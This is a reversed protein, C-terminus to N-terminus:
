EIEYNMLEVPLLSIVPTLVFSGRGLTGAVLTDDSNSFSLDFVPANPLDTGLTDWVTFPTGAATELAVYVGVNAGVALGDKGVMGNLYEISRLTGPSFSSFLNDTIETWSAGADTTQFVQDTDIVFATMADAPDVVIGVVTDGSTGSMAAYAASLAPATPPAATRVFVDDDSGFYLVDNNGATGYAIPDRGSSNVVLASILSVSAGRDASEYVGNSAGIIIRLPDAGNVALPTFFQASVPPAGGLPTLTLTTTGVIANASTFERRRLSSLFQFSHYRMSNTAITDGLGVVVDGGDATLYSTWTASGTSSQGTTGTDQNGSFIIDAVSDYAMNHQENVPLDGNLSAWDGTTLDPDSHRYIGGDDSEVLDGNSDFHMERSDAHPASGGATNSHTIHSAQSGALAGGDVRFLRASFDAAGISNPFSGLDMFGRPQRDGGIFCVDHDTPHAALSLHIGGQTGPHIGVMGGAGGVETTMPLDLATFTGGADSSLHLGSLAGSSVIAVFVNATAGGANGVAIEVRSTLAIDTDMAMNSVKTWTAGTDTSRYIGQSGAVAPSSIVTFLRTADTPDSALDFCLGLPLGTGAGGAANIQTWTAGTDTSRFIGVESFFFSDATNVSAVITPGRAALGSIQRGAMGPLQTWTTGGDMTRLVGTAAGGRAGFSSRRGVGAVLTRPDTTDTPDLEIAAMSMSSFADGQATWTPSAATADSSYFIGGNIAAIWIQAPDTPHIAFAEVAGTVPSSQAGMGEVQGGTAPGPGSGSYSGGILRSAKEEKQFESLPKWRPVIQGPTGTELPKQGDSIKTTSQGLSPSLSFLCAISIALWIKLIKIGPGATPNM